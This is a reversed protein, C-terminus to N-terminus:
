ECRETIREIHKGTCDFAKVPPTNSANGIMNMAPIAKDLTVMFGGGTWNHIVGPYGIVLQVRDGCRVTTREGSALTVVMGAGTMEGDQYQTVDVDTHKMSGLCQPPNYFSGAGTYGDTDPAPLWVLSM